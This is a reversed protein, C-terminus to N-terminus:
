FLPFYFLLSGPEWPITSFHVVPADGSLSIRLSLPASLAVSFLLICSLFITFIPVHFTLLRISTPFRSRRSSSSSLHSNFNHPKDSTHHFFLPCKAVSRPCITM